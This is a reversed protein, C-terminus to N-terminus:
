VVSKRDLQQNPNIKPQRRRSAAPAAGLNRAPVAIKGDNGHRNQEAAPAFSPDFEGADRKASDARRREAHDGSFLREQTLQRACLKKAPRAITRRLRHIRRGVNVSRRAVPAM